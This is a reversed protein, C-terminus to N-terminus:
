AHPRGPWNAPVAFHLCLLAAGGFALDLIIGATGHSGVAINLILGVLFAVAAFIALM